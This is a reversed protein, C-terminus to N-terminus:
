SLAGLRERYKALTDEQCGYVCHRKTYNLAVNRKFAYHALQMIIPTPM